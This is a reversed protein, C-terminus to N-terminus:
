LISCSSRLQDLLTTFKVGAHIFWLWGGGRGLHMLQIVLVYMFYWLFGAWQSYTLVM